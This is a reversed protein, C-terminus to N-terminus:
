QRAFIQLIKLDEASLPTDAKENDGPAAKGRAEELKIIVQTLKVFAELLHFDGESSMDAKLLLSVQLKNLLLAAIEAAKDAVDCDEQSSFRKSKIKTM